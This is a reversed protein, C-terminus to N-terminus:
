DKVFMCEEGDLEIYFTGSYNEFRGSLKTDDEYSFIIEYEGTYEDFKIEFTGTKETEVINDDVWRREIHKFTYDYNLMFSDSSYGNIDSYSGFFEFHIEPDFMVFTEGDLEFSTLEENLQIEQTSGDTFTLTVVGTTEDISMTGRALIDYENGLQVFEFDNNNYVKIKNNESFFVIELEKHVVSYYTDTGDTETVVCYGDLVYNGGLVDDGTSPNYNKFTGGWIAIDANQVNNKVNVVYYFGNWDVDTEFTGSVIGVYAGDANVFICSNGQGNADPGVSMTVNDQVHLRGQVEVCRCDAGSGGRITGTGTLALQSGANVKFVAGDINAGTITHGGLNISVNEATVELTENELSIDETLTISGGNALTDKLIDIVPQKTFVVGDVEEYNELLIFSDSTLWRIDYRSSINMVNDDNVEFNHIINPSRWTGDSYKKCWTTGNEEYFQYGRGDETMYTGLQPQLIFEDSYEEVAITLNVTINKVYLLEPQTAFNGDGFIEILEENTYKTYNIDNVTVRYTTKSLADVSDFNFGIHNDSNFVFSPQTSYTSGNGNNFNILATYNNVVHSNIDLNPVNLDFNDNISFGILTPENSLAKIEASTFIFENNNPSTDFYIHTGNDDRFALHYEFFRNSIEVANSQAQELEAELEAVRATLTNVSGTLEDVETELGAILEANEALQSNLSTIRANVVNLQEQLEVNDGNSEALEATLRAKDTNASDLQTQLSAKDARAQALNANATALENQVRTLNTRATNLEATKAENEARLDEIEKDKLKYENSYKAVWDLAKERKEPIAAIVGAAVTPVALLTAITGMIVSGKGM